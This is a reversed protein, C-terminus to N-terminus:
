QRQYFYLSRLPNYSFTDNYYPPPNGEGIGGWVLMDFGTWVAAHGWRAAPAGDGTLAQWRDAVPDYQAGDDQAVYYMTSAGGLIIMAEGTWVSSFATRGSPAGNTSIARWADTAPHYRANDTPHTHGGLTNAGGWILMESGTWVAAHGSRASPASAAAMPSWTNAALNYRGGDSRYLNWPESIVAGGWIIIESGTWVATHGHRAIPAGLSTIPTWSDTAPNYRAGDNFNTLAGSQEDKGAGGWIIMETGTWVASHSSRASPAGNTNIGRWTDSAPDYRGGGSCLYSPRSGGPSGAFYSGGWVIMETGTWIATHHWRAGPAGTLSVASWANAALEYCGGDNLCDEYPDYGYDQRVWMGGWVIMKSGTWVATHDTRGYLDNSYGPYINRPRARERWTNGLQFDGLKVYGAQLLNTDVARSSLIVGGGPVGSQGSAALNAVAAGPALQAPGVAGNALKAASVSGNVLAAGSLATLGSGSGAFSDATVAGAVQLATQPASTGIGVKGSSTISLRPVARTYLDLGLANGGKTRKSALGEGSGADGFVLGPKITGTNSESPDIVLTEFANQGIFAQEHADLLPVNLPLNAVPLRGTMEEARQAHHAYPSATLPQRPLLTVFENMVGTRVGIELWFAPCKVLPRLDL